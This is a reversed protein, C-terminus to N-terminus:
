DLGDLITEQSIHAIIFIATPAVKQSNRRYLPLLAVQKRGVFTGLNPFVVGGGERMVMHDDEMSKVTSPADM